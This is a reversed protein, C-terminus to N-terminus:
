LIGQSSFHHLIINFYDGPAPWVDPRTEFLYEGVFNNLLDATRDQFIGGSIQMEVATELRAVSFINQQFYESRTNATTPAKRLLIHTM